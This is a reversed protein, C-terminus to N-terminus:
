LQHLSQNKKKTYSPNNISEVHSINISAELASNKHPNGIGKHLKNSAKRQDFLQYIIYVSSFLSPTRHEDISLWDGIKFVYIFYIWFFVIWWGLFGFICSSFHVFVFRIVAALWACKRNKSLSTRAITRFDYACASLKLLILPPHCGLDLGILKLICFFPNSFSLFYLNSVYIPFVYFYLNIIICKLAFHSSSFPHKRKNYINVEM